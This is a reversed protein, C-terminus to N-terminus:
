KDSRQLKVRQEYYETPTMFECHQSKLFEIIAVFNKWRDDKGWALPHGQLVFCKHTKVLEKYSTKFKEVDPLFTKHELALYRPYIYKGGAKATKPDGYMWTTIEPVESIARVTNANTGSWHPGFSKLPFGLKEKALKQCKELTAKQEEYSGEFEGHKDNGNRNKYGHCWFEIMGKAQQEKIWNFYEPRDKELSFGIIGASCKIKNRGLFDLCRQWGENNPKYTLDDLKLIIVTAKGSAASSAKDPAAGTGTVATAAVAGFILAQISRKMNM